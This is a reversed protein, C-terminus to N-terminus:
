LAFSSVFTLFGVIVIIEVSTRPIVVFKYIIATVIMMMLGIFFLPYRYKSPIHQKM